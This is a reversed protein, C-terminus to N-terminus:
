KHENKHKSKKGYGSRSKYISIFTYIIETTATERTADASIRRAGSPFLPPIEFCRRRSVDSQIRATILSGSIEKEFLMREDGGLSIVYRNVSPSVSVSESDTNKSLIESKEADCNFM